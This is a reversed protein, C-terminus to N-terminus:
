IKLGNKKFFIQKVPFLRDPFTPKSRSNKRISYAIQTLAMQSFLDIESSKHNPYFIDHKEESGLSDVAKLLCVAM